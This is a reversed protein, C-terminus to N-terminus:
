SGKPRGKLSPPETAAHAALAESALGLDLNLNIQNLIMKNVALKTLRVAEPSRAAIDRACAMVQDMLEAKGFVRNVLGIREAERADIAIGRMLYEKAINPGVLLPWIVQGGDGAPLGVPTHADGISAGEAMYCIDCLLAISTGLGRAPGNIAAIVPAECRAMSWTLDRNRLIDLPGPRGGYDKLDGGACFADGAGTLVIVRVDPHYSLEHFVQELGRHMARNVANRSKPRDLTVLAIGDEIEVRVHHDRHLDVFNMTVEATPSVM